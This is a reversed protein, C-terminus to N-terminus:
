IKSLRGLVTQKADRYTDHKKIEATFSVIAGKEIETVESDDTIFRPNITGFKTFINGKDDTLRYINTWGFSGEFGSINQITLNLLPVKEGVEGVFNSKLTEEKKVNKADEALKMGWYMSCTSIVYRLHKIKVGGTIFFNRSNVLFNNDRYREEIFKKMIDYYENSAKKIIDQYKKNDEMWEEMADKADRSSGGRPPVNIYRLYQTIDQSTSNKERGDTNNMNFREASAKSTYGKNKVFWFFYKVSDSVSVIEDEPNYYGGGFGDYWDEDDWGGSEGFDTRFLDLETILTLIREYDYGLYYRICTGGVQKTEHTDKNQVFMTKNRQRKTHCHDCNSSDSLNHPILEHPIQKNPASIVLSEVHDIVGLIEWENEPKVEEIINIEFVEVEQSIITCPNFGNVNDHKKLETKIEEYNDTVTNNMIYSTGNIAIRKNLVYYSKEGLSKVEPLPLKLYKCYRTVNKIISKFVSVKFKPIEVIRTEETVELKVEQINDDSM